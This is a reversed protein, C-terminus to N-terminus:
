LGYRIKLYNNYLALYEVSTLVRDYVIFESISGALHPSGGSHTGFTFGHTANAALNSFSITQPTKAVENEYGGFDTTGSGQDATLVKVNKTSYAYSFNLLTSATSPTIMTVYGATPTVADDYKPWVINVAGGSTHGRVVELNGIVIITFDSTNSFGQIGSRLRDSVGDFAFETQGGLGSQITPFHAINDYYMFGGASGSNSWASAGAGSSVNVGVDARLWVTCGSLDTPVNVTGSSAKKAILLRSFPHQAHSEPICLIFISLLTVLLKKM